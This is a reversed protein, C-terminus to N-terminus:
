RSDRRGPKVPCGGGAQGDGSAGEPGGDEGSFASVIHSPDLGYLRAIRAADRRHRERQLRYHERLIPGVRRPERRIERAAAVPEADITRMTVSALLPMILVTIGGAAVLVSATGAELANASVAVTTVAVILPLATTCYLAVTLRSNAGMGAADPDHRLAVFIPVARVLLLLVIFGVLLLPQDLVAAMDIRAGSVIFFLPIFFGHGISSVKRELSASGEPLVFRLVFGAAFAGLVIDLDFVASIATLGVLLVMVARVAMQSNTDANREIFRYVFGGAKRAMRPIVAAAVAIAVFLALILVTLWEARTSLLLTMALIPCLEGWTGYALVARGVPAEIVGREQLIPLLTGIATTTLAIAVAIGDIHSASFPTWLMVAGFALGLTVMWTALGRRGQRGTLHAPDIEYGALLFLLGLGLDSLLAIADSTSVIGALHPGAVMGAILLFVTESVPKGPISQAILPCLFALLTIFALSTLDAM